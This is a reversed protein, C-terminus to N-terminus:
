RKCDYSCRLFFFLDGKEKEGMEVGRWRCEVVGHHWLFEVARVVGGGIIVRRRQLLRLVPALCLLAWRTPGVVPPRRVDISPRDVRNFMVAPLRPGVAIGVSAEVGVGGEGIRMRASAPWRRSAGQGRPCSREMRRNELWAGRDGVTGYRVTV